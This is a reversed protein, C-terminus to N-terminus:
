QKLHQERLWTFLEPTAYAQEWSKHGVGPYAKDGRYDHPVFLVYKAEQGSADNFVRNLFGRNEESRVDAADTLWLLGGIRLAMIEAASLFNM